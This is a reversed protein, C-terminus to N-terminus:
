DLPAEPHDQYYANMSKGRKILSDVYREIKYITEDDEIPGIIIDNPSLNTKSLYDTKPNFDYIKYRNRDQDDESKAIYKYTYERQEDEFYTKEDDTEVIKLVHPEFGNSKARVYWSMEKLNNNEIADYLNQKPLSYIEEGLAEKLDSDLNLKFGSEENEHLFRNKFVSEYAKELLIDDNSRM